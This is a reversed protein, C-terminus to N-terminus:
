YQYDETHKAIQLYCAASITVTVTAKTDTISGKGVCFREIEDAKMTMALVGDITVTLAAAARIRFTAYPPLELTGGTNTLLEVWVAGTELIRASGAPINGTRM